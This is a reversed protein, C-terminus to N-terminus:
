NGGYDPQGRAKDPYKDPTTESQNEVAGRDDPSTPADDQQEGNPKNPQDTPMADSRVPQTICVCRHVFHFWVAILLNKNCQLLREVDASIFNGAGV